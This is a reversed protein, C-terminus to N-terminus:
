LILLEGFMLFYKINVNLTSKEEPLKWNLSKKFDHVGESKQRKISYQFYMAYGIDKSILCCWM